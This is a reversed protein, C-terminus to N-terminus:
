KGKEDKFVEGELITLRIFLSWNVLLQVMVLFMLLVIVVAFITTISM